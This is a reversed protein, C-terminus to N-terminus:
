EKGILDVIVTIIIDYARKGSDTLEVSNDLLKDKQEKTLSSSTFKLIDSGDEKTPNLSYFFIEFENLDIDSQVLGRAQLEKWISYTSLTIFYNQVTATDDSGSGVIRHSKSGGLTVLYKIEEQSLGNIISALEENGSIKADEQIKFSLLGALSGENSDAFKEPILEIIKTIPNYFVLFVILVMVQWTILGFLKSLIDLYSNIREFSFIKKSKTVRPTKKKETVSEEPTDINKNNAM